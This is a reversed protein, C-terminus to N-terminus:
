ISHDNFSFDVNDTLDYPKNSERLKNKSRFDKGLHNRNQIREIEFVITESFIDPYFEILAIQAEEILDKKNHKINNSVLSSYLKEFLEKRKELENSIYEIIEDYDENNVCNIFYQTSVSVTEFLDDICVYGLGYMYIHQLFKINKQHEGYM